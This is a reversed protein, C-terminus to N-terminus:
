DADADKDKRKQRDNPVRRESWSRDEPRPLDERHLRYLEVIARQVEPSYPSPDPFGLDAADAVRGYGERRAMGHSEDWSILTELKRPPTMEGDAIVAEVSTLRKHDPAGQRRASGKDSTDRIM